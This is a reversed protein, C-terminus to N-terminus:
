QLPTLSLEERMKSKLEEIEKLRPGPLGRIIALTGGLIRVAEYEASESSYDKPLFITASQDKGRGVKGYAIPYGIAIEVRGENVAKTFEDVVQSLTEGRVALSEIVALYSTKGDGKREVNM